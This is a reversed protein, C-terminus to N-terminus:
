AQSVFQATSYYEYDDFYVLEDPCTLGIDIECTYATKATLVEGGVGETFEFRRTTFDQQLLLIYQLSNLYTYFNSFFIDVQSMGPNGGM